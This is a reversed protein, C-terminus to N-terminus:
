GLSEQCLVWAVVQEEQTQSLRQKPQNAEARSMRGKIRHSITPAPIGWKQASKRLSLGNDTIDLIAEAMDDETYGIKSQVPAMTSPVRIAIAEPSPNNM